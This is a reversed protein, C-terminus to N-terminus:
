RRTSANLIQKSKIWNEPSFIVNNPLSKNSAVRLATNLCRGTNKLIQEVMGNEKAKEWTISSAHDRDYKNKGITFLMSVAYLQHYQAYANMRFLMENLRLPNKNSWNKIIEKM